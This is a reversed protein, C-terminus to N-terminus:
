ESGIGIRNFDVPDLTRGRPLVNIVSQPGCVETAGWDYLGQQRQARQWGADQVRPTYHARVPLYGEVNEDLRTETAKGFLLPSLDDEAYCAPEPM